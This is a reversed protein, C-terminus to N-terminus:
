IFSWIVPRNGYEHLYDYGQLDNGSWSEEGRKKRKLVAETEKRSKETYCVYIYCSLVLYENILKYVYIIIQANKCANGQPILNDLAVWVQWVCYQKLLIELLSFKM